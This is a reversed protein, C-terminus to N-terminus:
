IAREMMARLEENEEAHNYRALTTDQTWGGLEKALEDPVGAEKLRTRFTHRYSHYSYREGKIGARKLIEAFPEEHPDNPYAGAFRPFLYEVGEELNSAGKKAASGGGSNIYELLAEKLVKVMPIKVAVGYSKTKSPELEILGKEFDIMNRNLMFVDKKRLGTWRGVLCIVAWEKLKCTKTVELIAAEQERTFAEGREGDNIIPAFNKWVDGQIEPELGALVSWISSLSTIKNRRSKDKLPEREGNKNIKGQRKIWEAYSFAVDADVEKCIKIGRTEKAWEIFNDLEAKLANITKQTQHKGRQEIVRRYRSWAEDLRIGVLGETTKYIARLIREMASQHLRGHIALAMSREIERAIMKDETGTSQRIFKGPRKPDRFGVWWCKSDKRKYVM